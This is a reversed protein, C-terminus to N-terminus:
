KRVIDGGPSKESFIEGQFKEIKIGEYKWVDEPLGAKTYLNFLFEEVTWNWEIPVQPLLLGRRGSYEVILGDLGIEIQSLLEEQTSYFIEKPETLITVEITCKNLEEITLDRFRPDHCASRASQTLSEKLSFSPEPYGICGRLEGSPFNSITVFVGKFELFSEPLSCCESQERKVESEAVNRATKVAMRGEDLEM